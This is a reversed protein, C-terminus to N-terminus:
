NRLLRLNDVNVQKLIYTNYVDVHHAVSSKGM